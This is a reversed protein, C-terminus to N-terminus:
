VDLAGALSGQSQGKNGPPLSLGFPLEANRERVIPAQSPPVSVDSSLRQKRRLFMKAWPKEPSYRIMMDELRMLLWPHRSDWGNKTFVIDDAIYVCMHVTRMDAGLPEYLLILDGFRNAAPVPYYETQMVQFQVATETLRPDATENFFNLSTWFCDPARGAVVQNTPHPYSYLLLRPVPPFFWSVNIAGGEPRRKVSEVLPRVQRRRCPLGWYSMIQKVDSTPSIRLMVLLSPERDLARAAKLRVEPALTHSLYLRDSFYWVGGKQYSMQQILALQDPELGSDAFWAHFDGRHCYPSRQAINAESKALVAYLRERASPPLGRIVELAPEIQIGRPLVRWRNTDTLLVLQREPLNCSRLLNTLELPSIGEFFWTIPPPVTPEAAYYELPRELMIPIVELDGWPKTATTTSVPKPAPHPEARRPLPLWGAYHLAVALLGGGVGYLCAKGISHWFSRKPEGAEKPPTKPLKKM